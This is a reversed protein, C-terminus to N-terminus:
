GRRSDQVFAPVAGVLRDSREAGGDAEPGIVRTGVDIEADGQLNPPFSASAIASNRVAM